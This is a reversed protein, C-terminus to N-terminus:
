ASDAQPGRTSCPATTRSRATPPRAGPSATSCATAAPRASAPACSPTASRRAAAHHRARRPRRAARAPRDRRRHRRGRAARRRDHRRAARRVGDGRDRAALLGRLAVARGRGRGRRVARRHARHTVGSVFEVSDTLGLRDICARPDQEQGQAQRHRRPAADDRETRVKALAELLPVLGKMPVDASATTMLRGPVRAITPCRASADRTSASPCSTCGTPAARGDARRHRAQEVGVRHRRAPDRRAVKMQMGLFATGAACRSGGGRRQDRARPRPRPRRHDPPAAHGARALRRGDDRAPRLRPVPQRPHPRLRRPAADLLRRARLSFTYPEPFGAACMIAFEQLDITTKFEWPWPVRFPNEPRYLDLSPVQELQTPTTSSPTRSAPSAGDIQHGLETLERALYRTYVGQGGCHPNGRYVLWAIRLSDPQSPM